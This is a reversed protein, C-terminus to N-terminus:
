INLYEFMNKCLRKLPEEEITFVKHYWLLIPSFAFKKQSSDQLISQIEKDTISTMRFTEIIQWAYSMIEYKRSLYKRATNLDKVLILNYIYERLKVDNIHIMQERHILEHGIVIIVENLFSDYKKSDTVIDIINSNCNIHIILTKRNIAGNRVYLSGSSGSSKFEIKNNKLVENFFWYLEDLTKNKFKNLVEGKIEKFLKKVNNAYGEINIVAEHIVWMYKEDKFNHPQVSILCDKLEYKVKYLNIFEKIDSESLLTLPIYREM